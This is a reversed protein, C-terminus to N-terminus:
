ASATASPAGPPRALLRAVAERRYDFIRELDRGILLRHALAGAALFPMGYVVRDRILTGGAREAFTHTHEWFAFPGDLQRDVFCVGPEWREIRTRWRVPVRHLTLRYEILAGERLAIPQPTLIRFRLWPPTIAELNAADAFFAFADPVSLPVLQAREISRSRSV